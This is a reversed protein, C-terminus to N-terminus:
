RVTEKAPAEQDEKAPREPSGLREEVRDLWRLEAEASYVLRELRLQWAIDDGASIEERLRTLDQLSGMTASRQTEIVRRADISESYLAVLVKISLEDRGAVALAEPHSQWRDLELRGEDTLSYVVRGESDTEEVSVLGDRDLRQLTSYVQGVNISLSDGTATEFDVKLQYGHKPGDALLALLGERVGM